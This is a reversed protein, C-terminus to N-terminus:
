AGGGELRHLHLAAIVTASDIEGGRVLEALERFPVVRVRTDEGADQDKERTRRAGSAVAVHVRTTEWSPNLNLRGIIRVEEAEYGTEEQLERLAAAEPAEGEDIIGSPTELSCERVGQRYQEVLVVEGDPTLAIVTVGDPGDVVDFEHVEGTRPSRCRDRRVKFMVYEEAEESSLLEWPRLPEGEEHM